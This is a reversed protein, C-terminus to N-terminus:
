NTLIQLCCFNEAGSIHAQDTEEEWEVHGALCRGESLM